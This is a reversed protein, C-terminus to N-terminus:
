TRRDIVVDDNRRLDLDGVRTGVGYEHRVRDHETRLTAHADREAEYQRRWRKGSPALMLGLLLGALFVLTIFVWENTTFDM